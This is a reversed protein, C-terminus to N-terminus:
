DAPMGSDEIFRLVDPDDTDAAQAMARLAILKLKQNELYLLYYHLRSLDKWAQDEYGSDIAAPALNKLRTRIGSAVELSTRALVYHKIALKKRVASSQRSALLVMARKMSGDDFLSVPAKARAFTEYNRYDRLLRQVENEISSYMTTIAIEKQKEAIVLRNVADLASQVKSGIIRDVSAATALSIKQLSDTSRSIYQPVSQGAVGNVTSIILEIDKDTLVVKTNGSVTKGLVAKLYESNSATFQNGIADGVSMNGITGLIGFGDRAHVTCASLAARTNGTVDKQRATLSSAVDIRGSLGAMHMVLNSAVPLFGSVMSRYENVQGSYTGVLGPSKLFVQYNKLVTSTDNRDFGKRRLENQLTTMVSNNLSGTFSALSMDGNVIGTQSKLGENVAGGIMSSFDNIGSLDGTGAFNGPKYSISLKQSLNAKLEGSMFNKVLNNLLASFQAYNTVMIIPSCKIACEARRSFLGYSIFFIVLGFFTLIGIVLSKKVRLRNM